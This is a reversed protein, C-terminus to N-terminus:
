DTGLHRQELLQQKRGGKYTAEDPEHQDVQNTPIGVEVPQFSMVGFMKLIIVKWKNANPKTPM